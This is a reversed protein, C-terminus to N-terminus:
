PADVRINMADTEDDWSLDLHWCGPTPLDLYSPGPSPLEVVTPTAGPAPRATITLPGFGARAVWLVKNAHDPSEPATLPEGFVIAVIRGEDGLVHPMTPRPDSFGSRAWPPLVGVPTSAPCSYSGPARGSAAPGAPPDPHRVVVAGWAVGLVAGVAAVAVLVTSRRRRRGVRGRVTGLLDPDHPARDALTSLGEGLRAQLGVDDHQDSM